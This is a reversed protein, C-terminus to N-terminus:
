QRQTKEKLALLAARAQKARQDQPAEKLFTEYEAAAEAPLNKGEFARACVYHV